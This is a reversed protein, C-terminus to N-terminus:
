TNKNKNIKIKRNNFINTQNNHYGKITTYKYVGAHQIQNTSKLTILIQAQDQTIKTELEQKKLAFRRQYKRTSLIPNQNQTTSM